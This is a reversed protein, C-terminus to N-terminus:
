QEETKNYKLSMFQRFDKQCLNALEDNYGIIAQPCLGELMHLTEQVHVEKKMEVAQPTGDEFVLMLFYQKGVTIFYQKHKTISQYAWVLKKTEGFAVNPGSMGCLFENNYRLGNVPTTNALFFEVKEKAAASNTSGSIYANMSKQYRGRLLCIILWIVVGGLLAILACWLLIGGIGTEGIMDVEIYYPLFQAKTEEDLDSIYDYYADMDESPMFHITGTVRYASKALEDGDITGDLFKSSEALLAEAQEMDSKKVKLGMYYNENADIFYERAVLDDGEMEDAYWDYIGQLETTVYIDDIDQTFDVESLEVPGQVLMVLSPVTVYILAALVIMLLAIIPLLNTLTKMKLKKM